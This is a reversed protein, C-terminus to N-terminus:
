KIEVEDVPFDKERLMGLIDTLTALHRDKEKLLDKLKKVQSELDKVVGPDVRDEPKLPVGALKIMFRMEEQLSEMHKIPCYSTKGKYNRIDYTRMKFKEITEEPFKNIEKEGDAMLKKYQENWSDTPFEHEFPTNM